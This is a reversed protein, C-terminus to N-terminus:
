GTNSKRLETLVDRWDEPRERCKPCPCGGPPQSHCYLQYGQYQLMKPDPKGSAGLSGDPRTYQHCVAIHYGMLFYPVIQSRTGPTQHPPGPDDKYPKRAVARKEHIAREYGVDKFM